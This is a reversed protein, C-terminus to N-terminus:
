FTFPLSISLTSLLPATNHIITLKGWTLNFGVKDLLIGAFPTALVPLFYVVSIHSILPSYLADQVSVSLYLTTTVVAHLWVFAKTFLITM